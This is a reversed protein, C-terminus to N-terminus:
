SREPFNSTKSGSQISGSAATKAVKQSFGQRALLVDACTKADAHLM